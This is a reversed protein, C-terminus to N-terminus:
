RFFMTALWPAAGMLFGIFWAIGYRLELQSDEFERIRFRRGGVDVHRTHLPITFM